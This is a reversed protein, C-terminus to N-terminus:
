FGELEGFWPRQAEYAALREQEAATSWKLKVAMALALGHASSIHTGFTEDEAFSCRVPVSDAATPTYRARLANSRLWSEYLERAEVPVISSLHPHRTRGDPMVFFEMRALM